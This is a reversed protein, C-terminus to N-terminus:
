RKKGRVAKLSNITATLVQDIQHGGTSGTIHQQEALILGGYESGISLTDVETLRESLGLVTSTVRVKWADYKKGCGNVRVDGVNSGQAEEALTSAPDVAASLWSQGPAANTQLLEIGPPLPAFSSTSNGSKTVTSTLYLGGFTQLTIAPNLPTQPISINEQSLPPIVTFTSTTTGGGFTPRSVTFASMELPLSTSIRKVRWLQTGRLRETVKGDVKATGHTRYQYGAATVERSIGATVPVAPV